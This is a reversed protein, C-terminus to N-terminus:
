AWDRGTQVAVKILEDVSERRGRCVPCDPQPCGDMSRLVERAARQVEEPYPTGNESLFRGDVNIM